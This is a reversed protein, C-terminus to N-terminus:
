AIEEILVDIFDPDVKGADELLQKALNTLNGDSRQLAKLVRGPGECVHASHRETEGERTTRGIASVVYANAATRYLALDTWRISTADQSTAEALLEGNFRLHKAGARELTFTPM